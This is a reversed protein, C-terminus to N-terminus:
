TQIRERRKGAPTREGMGGKREEEREKGSRRKREEDKRDEEEQRGRQKAAQNRREEMAERARQEEKRAAVRRKARLVKGVREATRKDELQEEYNQRMDRVVQEDLGINRKEELFESYLKDKQARRKGMEVEREKRRQRRREATEGEEEGESSTPDVIVGLDRVQKDYKAQKAAHEKELLESVSMEVRNEVEKWYNRQEKEEGTKGQSDESEASLSGEESEGEPEQRM